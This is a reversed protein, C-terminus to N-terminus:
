GSVKVEVVFILVHKLGLAKNKVIAKLFIAM